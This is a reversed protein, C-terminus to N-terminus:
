GGTMNQLLISGVQQSVAGGIEDSLNVFKQVTTVLFDNFDAVTEPIELKPGASKSPAPPPPPSPTSIVAPIAAAAAPPTTTAPAANIPDVTKEAMDELRSTAAELRAIISTLEDPPIVSLLAEM